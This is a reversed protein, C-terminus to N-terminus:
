EDVLLEQGIRLWDCLPLRRTHESCGVLSVPCRPRCCQSGNLGAWAMVALTYICTFSCYINATM